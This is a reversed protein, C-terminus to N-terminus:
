ISSIASSNRSKLWIKITPWNANWLVMPSEQYSYFLLLCGSQKSCSQLLELANAISNSCDQVLDDVNWQPHSMCKFFDDSCPHIINFFGNTVHRPCWCRTKQSGQVAIVPFWTFSGPRNITEFPLVPCIFYNIAVCGHFFVHWVKFDTNNRSTAKVQITIGQWLVCQLILGWVRTHCLFDVVACCRELFINKGRVQTRHGRKSVHNLKLGLM